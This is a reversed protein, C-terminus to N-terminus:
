HNGWDYEGPQAKREQDLLKLTEQRLKHQNPSERESEDSENSSRKFKAKLMGYYSTSTTGTTVTSSSSLRKSFTSTSTRSPSTADSITRIPSMIHSLESMRKTQRERFVQSPRQFTSITGPQQQPSTQNKRSPPPSHHSSSTFSYASHQSNSSSRPLPVGDGEQHQRESKGPIDPQMSLHSSQYELSSASSRQPKHTTPTTLATDVSYEDEDSASTSSSSVSKEHNSSGISYRRRSNDTHQSDDGKSDTTAATTTTTSINNLPPQRHEDPVASASTTIDREGLNPQPPHDEIDTDDDSTDVSEEDDTKVEIKFGFHDYYETQHPNNLVSDVVDLDYDHLDFNPNDDEKDSEQSHSPSLPRSTTNTNTHVTHNTEPTRDM